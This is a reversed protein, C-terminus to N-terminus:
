KPVWCRKLTNKGACAGSAIAIVNKLAGAIELGIPDNMDYVRFYSAHFLQQTRHAREGSYSGVAVCAPQRKIVEAAFSPGSLFVAQNGICEGLVQVAIDSPLLGSSIEIGKNM